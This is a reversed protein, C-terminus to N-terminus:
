PCTLQAMGAVNSTTMTMQSLPMSPDMPATAQISVTGTFTTCTALGNMDVTVGVPVPTKAFPNGISWLFQPTGTMPAMSYNGMATFQVQKNPFNQANASAPTVAISQLQRAGMTNMM